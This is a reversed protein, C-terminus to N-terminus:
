LLLFPRGVCPGNGGGRVRCEIPRLWVLQHDSQARVREFVRAEGAATNRVSRPHTDGADEEYGIQRMHWPEWIRVPPRCTQSPSIEPRQVIALTLTIRSYMERRRSVLIKNVCWVPGVAYPM